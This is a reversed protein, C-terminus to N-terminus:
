NREGFRLLKKGHNKLFLIELGKERKEKQFEYVYMPESTQMRYTGYFKKM